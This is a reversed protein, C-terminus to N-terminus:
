LVNEWKREFIELETHLEINQWKEHDLQKHCLM